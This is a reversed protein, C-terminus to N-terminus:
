SDGLWIFVTEKELTPKYNFSISEQSFYNEKVGIAIKTLPSAGDKSKANQRILNRFPDTDVAVGPVCRDIIQNHTLNLWL